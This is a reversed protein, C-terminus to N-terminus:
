LIGTDGAGARVLEPADGTCDIVTSPIISGAGGDVVVDVTNEWEEAIELPDTPYERISDLDHLSTVILPNGLGNVIAQIIPHDPVRLGITKRRSRFLSPVEHSAELIFTYPGPLAKNLIKYVSRDFPKAYVSINSLDGCMMSFNAKEPKVGKLRCIKEFARYQRIDCIFAYITDTPVVAVGGKKLLHVIETIKRPEPNRPHITLIM